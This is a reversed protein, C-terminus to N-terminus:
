STYAQAIRLVLMTADKGYCYLASQHSHKRMASVARQLRVVLIVDAAYTSM